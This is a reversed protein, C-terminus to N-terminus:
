KYFSKISSVRRARTRAANKKVNGIYMLFGYIDTLTISKIFEADINGKHKKENVMYNLFARLDYYYEHVTRESKGEITLKQTLFNRLIEPADDYVYM